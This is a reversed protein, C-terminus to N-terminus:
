IFNLYVFNVELEEQNFPPTINVWCGSEPQELEKLRGDVKLYYRVM